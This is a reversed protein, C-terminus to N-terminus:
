KKKKVPTKTSDKKIKKKDATKVNPQKKAVKKIQPSERRDDIGNKNKDVFKDYKRASRKVAKVAPKKIKQPQKKKADITTKKPEVKKKDVAWAPQIAAAM